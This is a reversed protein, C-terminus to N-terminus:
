DILVMKKTATFDDADLRYYLVGTASLENSSITVQNYGAAYDGEISFVVKGTVDFVTMTAEMAEPLTFAVVTEGNFPNPSNQFLAFDKGAPTLNPNTFTLAVDLVEEAGDYAEAATLRSGISLMESLSGSQTATFTMTFLVDSADATVPTIRHWSATLASKHVGVNEAGMDIAGAVVDTLTLGETRLTFQYGIIDNFNDSTVDVVVEQGAEVSQETAEFSLVGNVNRTEISNANAAVTGNVDGIKVAIFDNGMTLSQVSIVETFDWPNTPDSFVYEGDVFRWSENNPLESYLGLILKRLEVLDIASVSHSNNADAAILKYPSGLDEIGLLHKQIGVLDLTSVGNMPDDNRVPEMDFDLLPNIFHYLGDKDTTFTRFVDGNQDKLNVTVLEVPDQEETQIAGGATSGGTGCVNTNDDIVIFTTCFDKNRENWEIGDLIGENQNPSRYGNCNQDNGEDAVWIEVIFSPSGNEAIAACDFNRSPEYNTGSFSYLLDAAETCDDFSSANFDKAWITVMGGAPMVVSSLGVCVPSPAKCDELRLLYEFTTTNGCGDEMSWLVRHYDKEGGAAPWNSCYRSNYPLGNLRVGLISSARSDFFISGNGNSDIAAETNKLVQMYDSGNNPYFKLDYTIIDSCMEVVPHELVIHVSCSSALPNNEGLFVQNNAPLSVNSDLACLTIPGYTGGPISAFVVEPGESDIVKIVQIYRWIGQEYPFSEYQCWDIITWERLIKYCAGEVFDFRTDEYTVGILSCNDDFITPYDVPVGGDPCNDYLKDCPWIVGDRPDSNVCTQDSIYFPDFDVVWIRQVCTQSNGQADKALFTREVLRVAYAPAGSPLNDGSCDDIIRVRVTIDVNCNDDAWGELGWNYPQPVEDNGPDNIVVYNRDSQDYEYADLVRGFVPTTADQDQPVFGNTEEVAFWFDCSVTLSPPCTIFPSLKDQVEIEVMCSNVNGAEDQVRLEIMIPGAAVDCCAFPVCPRFATGKDVSSIIGNKLDDICAGGTTWDFDICSTMRRATLTIDGCNDYSGDDFVSAPVKTLGKDLDGDFTLSVITHEDCLPVPPVDDVVCIEYSCSSSNGCEDEATWTIITCGLPLDDVRYYGGFNVITGQSATPVLTYNSGGCPEYVTPPVLNVDATCFWPDSGVIQDQPCTLEPGAAPLKIVQVCETVEQTCWDLITWTRILKTGNGCTSLPKDWYDLFINCLSGGEIEVGGITPYGTYDPHIPDDCDDGIYAEPCSLQSLDLPIINIIQVCSASNGSDDTATWTRVIAGGNCDDGVEEDEYTLTPPNTCNDTAVPASAQLEESSVNLQYADITGADLVPFNDEIRLIWTGTALSGNLNALPVQPTITGSLAPGAGCTPADGADDFTVDWDDTGGCTGSALVVEVGNPAVLYADIDASWTHTIKLSVTVNTVAYGLPADVQIEIEHLINDGAPMDIPLNPTDGVSAFDSDPAGFAPDTSVGCPLTITDCTIIPALKDEVNILGWCSNGTLTDTITVTLTEGVAGGDIMMGGLNEGYGEIAVIYGDYCAYPGGELIMDTGILATCNEDVSVQINDNCALTTTPNDFGNVEVNWSCTDASGDAFVVEVVFDHSGIGLTEGSEVGEIINLVAGPSGSQFTFNSFTGSAPGSFLSAIMLSFSEGSSIAVNAVSGSQTTGGFNDTVQIFDVFFYSQVTSYYMPSNPTGDFTEYDWDFSIFGDEPATWRILTGITLAAPCIEFTEMFVEDVSCDICGPWNLSEATPLDCAYGGVFGAVPPTGFNCGEADGELGVIYGYQISCLGPDLYIVEDDPCVVYCTDNAPPVVVDQCTLELDFTGTAGGFGHVLVLYDTGTVADFTVISTFGSCGAGDDNGAVCTLTGCGDTFVSIKTDYSAMNCTSLVTEGDIGTFSYWVGPSTISASGCFGADNDIAAGITTGATTSNCQIPIAGACLDNAPQAFVSGAGSICFALTLVLGLTFKTYIIKKM